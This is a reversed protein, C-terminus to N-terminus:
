YSDHPPSPAYSNEKSREGAAIQRQREAHMAQIRKIQKIKLSCERFDAILTDCKKLGRELGYAELCDLTKM